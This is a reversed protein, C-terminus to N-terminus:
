LIPNVGERTQFLGMLTDSNHHAVVVSLFDQGVSSVMCLDLSWGHVVVHDVMYVDKPWLDASVDYPKRLLEM